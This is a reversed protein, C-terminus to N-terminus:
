LRRHMPMFSLFSLCFFGLPVFVPVDDPLPGNMASTPRGRHNGTPSDPHGGGGFIAFLHINHADICGATFNDMVPENEGVFIRAFDIDRVAVGRRCRRQIAITDIDMESRIAGGTQISFRCFRDPLAPIKRAIMPAPGTRGGDNVLVHHDDMKITVIELINNREIFQRSFSEPFFVTEIQVFGVVAIMFFGEAGRRNKFDVSLGLEDTRKGFCQNRVFRFGSFFKPPNLEFLM